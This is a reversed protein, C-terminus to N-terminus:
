FYFRYACNTKQFPRRSFKGFECHSVDGNAMTPLVIRLSTFNSVKTNSEPPLKLISILVCIVDTSTITKFILPLVMASYSQNLTFDVYM